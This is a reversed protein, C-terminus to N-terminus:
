KKARLYLAGFAFSTVLYSGLFGFPNFLTIGVKVQLFVEGIVLGILLFLRLFIILMTKKFKNESQEEDEIVGILYYSLSSFLCGLAIGLPVFFTFVKCIALVLFVLAVALEGCFTIAFTKKYINLNEFKEKMFFSM